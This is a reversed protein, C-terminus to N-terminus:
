KKIKETLKHFQGKTLFIRHISQNGTDGSHNATNSEGCSVIKMNTLDIDIYFYENNKNPM